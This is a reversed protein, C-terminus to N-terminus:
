GRVLQIRPARKIAREYEVGDEMEAILDSISLAAEAEQMNEYVRVNFELPNTEYAVVSLDPGDPYWLITLRTWEDPEVTLQQLGSAVDIGEEPALNLCYM